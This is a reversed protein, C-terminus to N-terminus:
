PIGFKSVVFIMEETPLVTIITALEKKTTKLPPLKNVVTIIEPFGCLFHNNIPDNCLHQAKLKKKSQKEEEM